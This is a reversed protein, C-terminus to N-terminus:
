KYISHSIHLVYVCRYINVCLQLNGSDVASICLQICICVGTDGVCTCVLHGVCLQSSKPGGGWLDM